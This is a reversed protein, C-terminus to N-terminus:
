ELFDDIEDEREWSTSTEDPEDAAVTVAAIIASALVAQGDAGLARVPDLGADQMLQAKIDRIAQRAAQKLVDLSGESELASILAVEGGREFLAKVNISTKGANGAEFGFEDYSSTVSLDPVLERPAVEGYQDVLAGTTWRVHVISREDSLVFCRDGTRLGSVTDPGVYSATRGEISNSM